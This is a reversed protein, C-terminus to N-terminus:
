VEGRLKVYVRMDQRYPSAQKRVSEFELGLMEAWRSAEPFTTDTHVEIRHYKEKIAEDLYASIARTIRVAYKRFNKSLVAWGIGVGEGYPTIGAIGIVEGTEEIVGAFGGNQAVAVRFSPDKCQIAFYEQHEQIAIDALHYPALTTIRFTQQM